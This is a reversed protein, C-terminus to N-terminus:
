QKRRAAAQRVQRRLLTETFVAVSPLAAAILDAQHEYSKPLLVAARPARDRLDEILRRASRYEKVDLRAGAHGRTVHLDYSDM